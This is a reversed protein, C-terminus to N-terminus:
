LVAAARVLVHGRVTSLRSWRGNSYATAEAGTGLFGLSLGGFAAGAPIRGPVGELERGWVAIRASSVLPAGAREPLVGAVEAIGARAAEVLVEGAVTGEHIWGSRPPLVGAWAATASVTPLPLVLGDEPMRALRDLIAGLPVTVDVDADDQLAMTRLGLVTPVAEGLVTPGLARVYAALVGGTGVLRVAGDDDAARARAALTRFDRVTEVDTLRLEDVSM